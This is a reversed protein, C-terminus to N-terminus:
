RGWFIRRTSPQTKTSDSLSQNAWSDERGDNRTEKTKIFTEPDRENCGANGIKRTVSKM